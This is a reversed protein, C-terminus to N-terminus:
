EIGLPAYVTIQLPITEQTKLDKIKIVYDGATQGANVHIRPQSPTVNLGANDVVQWEGSGGQLTFFRAEGTKLDSKQPSATLPRLIDCLVIVQQEARDYFTIRDQMYRAPAQYSFVRPNDTASVEGALSQGYIPLLGGTLSLTHTQKLQSYLQSPEVSFTDAMLISSYFILLLLANYM